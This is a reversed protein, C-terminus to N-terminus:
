VKTEVETDESAENSTALDESASSTGAESNHDGGSIPHRMRRVATRGMSSVKRQVRKGLRKAATPAQQPSLSWNRQQQEQSHCSPLSDHATPHRTQLTLFLGTKEM